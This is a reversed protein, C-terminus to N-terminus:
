YIIFMFMVRLVMVNKIMLYYYKVTAYRCVYNNTYYALLRFIQTGVDFFYYLYACSVYYVIIIYLLINM